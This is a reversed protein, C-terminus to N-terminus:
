GPTMGCVNLYCTLGSGPCCDADTSCTEGDRRCREPPPPSCVPAGGGAPTRCDGGCCESGVGCGEGDPRCPRPAWYASINQSTTAQGPLWYAVASPDVGTGLADKRIAAVWIQQYGTGSTTTRGRTGVQPNGYPRRSLFSVWFYGGQDFPSFRPQFSENASPGGSANDLRVVSTGDARMMYLAASGTESRGDVGHSFALNMSDPTWTPYGDCAGGPISAGTHITTPAGVADPGTVPMIAINGNRYDGGWNEIGDVYAIARGDPSWAPHTMQTPLPGPSSVSVSGGTHPDLFAMTGMPEEYSVVLRTEDPSWSSFWWRATTPETPRTPWVTPAPDATLDTTLDFIAGINDSGGLRGAMYRGSPSVAHCGVCRGEGRMPQPPAPIINSRTVTGDDIRIIRGAAIDWYYVSGTLAARAFTVHVPPSSIVESTAAVFRDVSITAPVDPTTQAIARWGAADVLWHNQGDFPLYAVVSAEPKEVRVRYFDGSTGNLWQVDAPYVNQPMVVGDLPYAISAARMADDVPAGTFRAATTADTGTTFVERTLRVRLTAMASLGMAEVRVNGTGGILGTATALGSAEDITAIGPADFSFVPVMAARETGDSLSAIARFAQTPMAGDTAVLEASAPDLRLSVVTAIPADVGPPVYADISPTGTDTAPVCRSDTCVRGAGCEISTRCSTAPPSGGCDCGLATLLTVLSALVFGARAFHSFAFRSYPM